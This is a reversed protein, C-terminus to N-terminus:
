RVNLATGYERLGCIKMRAAERVMERKMYLDGSKQFAEIGIVIVFNIGFLPLLTNCGGIVCGVVPLSEFELIQPSIAFPTIVLSPLSTACTTIVVAVSPQILEKIVTIISLFIYPRVLVDNILELRHLLGLFEPRWRILLTRM